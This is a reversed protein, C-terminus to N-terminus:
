STNFNMERVSRLFHEYESNNLDSHSFIRVPIGGIVSVKQATYVLLLRVHQRLWYSLADM